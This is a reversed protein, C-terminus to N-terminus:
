KFSTKLKVNTIYATNLLDARNAHICTCIFQFTHYHTFPTPNEKPPRIKFFHSPAKLRLHGEQSSGLRRQQCNLAAAQSINTDHLIDKPQNLRKYHFGTTVLAHQFISATGSPLRLSNGHRFTVNLDYSLFFEM